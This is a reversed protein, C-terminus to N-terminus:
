IYIGTQQGETLTYQGSNGYYEVNDICLECLRYFIIRDEKQDVIDLIEKQLKILRAKPLLCEFVSYNVRIGGVDLLADVVKRRRSDDIIDYAIVTFYANKAM